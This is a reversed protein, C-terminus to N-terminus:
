RDGPPDPRVDVAVPSMETLAVLRGPLGVAHRAVLTAVGRHPRLARSAQPFRVGFHETELFGADRTDAPAFYVLRLEDLMEKVILEVAATCTNLDLDVLTGVQQRRCLNVLSQAGPLTWRARDGETHRFLGWRLEETM